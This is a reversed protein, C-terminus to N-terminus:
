ALVGTGGVIFFAGLCYRRILVVHHQDLRDNIEGVLLRELGHLSLEILLVQVQQLTSWKSLDDLGLADYDTSKGLTM